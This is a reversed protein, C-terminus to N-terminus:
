SIEVINQTREILRKIEKSLSIARQQNAPEKGELMQLISEIRSDISNLNDLAKEKYEPKM